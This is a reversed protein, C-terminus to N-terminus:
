QNRELRAFLSSLLSDMHLSAARYQGQKDERKEARTAGRHIPKVSFIFLFRSPDVLQIWHLLRFPFLLLMFIEHKLHFSVEILAVIVSGAPLSHLSCSCSGGNKKRSM